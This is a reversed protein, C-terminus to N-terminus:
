SPTTLPARWARRFATRTRCPPLPPLAFPSLCPDCNYVCSTFSRIPFFTECCCRQAHACSCFGGGGRGASPCGEQDCECLLPRRTPGWVCPPLGGMAAPHGGQQLPTKSCSRVPWPLYPSSLAERCDSRVEMTVRWGQMASYAYKTEGAGDIDQVDSEKTTIPRDLFSGMRECSSFIGGM